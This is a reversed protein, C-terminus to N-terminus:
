AATVVKQSDENFLVEKIAEDLCNRIESAYFKLGILYPILKLDDENEIGTLKIGSESIARAMLKVTADHALKLRMSPLATM